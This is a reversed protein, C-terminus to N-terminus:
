HTETTHTRFSQDSKEEGNEPHFNSNLQSVSQHAQKKPEARVDNCVQGFGELRRWSWQSMVQSWFVFITPAFVAFVFTTTKWWFIVSMQSSSCYMNDFWYWVYISYSLVGLDSFGFWIDLSCRLIQVIFMMFLFCSISLAWVATSVQEDKHQPHSSLDQQKLLVLDEKFIMRAKGDDWVMGIM